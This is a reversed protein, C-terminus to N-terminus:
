RFSLWSLRLCLSSRACLPTGKQNRALRIPLLDVAHVVRIRGGVLHFRSTLSGRGARRSGAGPVLDNPADDASTASSKIANRFRSGLILCRVSRFATTAPVSGKGIPVSKHRKPADTSSVSAGLLSRFACADTTDAPPPDGEDRARIARRVTMPM